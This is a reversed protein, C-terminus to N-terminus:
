QVALIKNSLWNIEHIMWTKMLQKTTGSRVRQHYSFNPLLAGFYLHNETILNYRLKFTVHGTLSELERM